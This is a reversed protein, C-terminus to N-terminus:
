PCLLNFVSAPGVVNTTPAGLALVLVEGSPVVGDGILDIDTPGDVLAEGGELIGLGDEELAMCLM